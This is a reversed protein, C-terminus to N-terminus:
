IHGYVNSKFLHINYVNDNTQSVYRSCQDESAFKLTLRLESTTVAFILVFRMM